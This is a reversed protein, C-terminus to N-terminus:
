VYPSPQPLSAGPAEPTPIRGLTARVGLWFFYDLALNYYVHLRPPQRQELWAIFRIVQDPTGSFLRSLGLLSARVSRWKWAEEYYAGLRLACFTDPHKQACLVATKGIALHDNALNAFTKEYHQTALADPSYVLRVGAATLRLALEGDENGYFTFTEDFLGVKHIVSRLISFNGSYFDRFGIECGPQALKGLHANFKAGIYQVVPPASATNRIPVAGLVGLSDQYDDQYGDGSQNSGHTESVRQSHAHLHGALFHAAPEM